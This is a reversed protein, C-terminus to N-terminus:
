SQLSKSFFDSSFYFVLLVAYVKVKCIIYLLMITGILFEILFHLVKNIYGSLRKPARSKSPLISNSQM